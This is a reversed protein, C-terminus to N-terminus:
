FVAYSIIQHSSNLRTSKRDPFAGIGGARKGRIDFTLDDILDAGPAFGTAAHAQAVVQRAERKEEDDNRRRDLNGVGPPDLSFSSRLRTTYPFAPSARGLRLLR